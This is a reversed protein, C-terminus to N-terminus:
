MLEVQLVCEKRDESFSCILEGKKKERVAKSCQNIESEWVSTCLFLLVKLRENYLMHFDLSLAQFIWKLEQGNSIDM